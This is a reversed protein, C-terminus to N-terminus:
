DIVLLRRTLDGSDSRLSLFYVGSPVREGRDSTRDWRLRQLGAPVRGDVLRRV